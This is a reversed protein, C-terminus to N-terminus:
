RRILYNEDSGDEEEVMAEDAAASLQAVQTAHKAAAAAAAEDISGSRVARSPRRSVATAYLQHNPSLVPRPSMSLSSRRVPTMSHDPSLPEISMKRLTHSGAAALPSRSLESPQLRPSSTDVTLTDVESTVHTTAQEIVAAVLKSERERREKLPDVYPKRCMTKLKKLHEEHDALQKAASYVPQVKMLRNLLRQNDLTQEQLQQERGARTLSRPQLLEARQARDLVSAKSVVGSTSSSSAAAQQQVAGNQIEYIRLGLRANELDRHRQGYSPVAARKEHWNHRHRAHLNHSQSLKNDITPKTARLRSVHHQHALEVAREAETTRTTGSPM